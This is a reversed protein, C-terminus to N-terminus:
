ATRTPWTWSFRAELHHGRGCRSPTLSRPATRRTTSSSPRTLDTTARGVAHDIIIGESSFVTVARRGFPVGSGLRDPVPDPSSCRGPSLRRGDLLRRRRRSSGRCTWRPWATPSRSVSCCPTAPSGFVPRCVPGRDRHAPHDPREDRRQGDAPGPSRGISPSWSRGQDAPRAAAAELLFCVKVSMTASGATTPRGGHDHHDRGHPPRRGPLTSTVAATTTAGATAATTTTAVTGGSGAPRTTIPDGEGIPEACAAAALALMALVVALRKM